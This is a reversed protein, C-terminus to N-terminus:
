KLRICSAYAGVRDQGVEGPAVNLRLENAGGTYIEAFPQQFGNNRTSSWAGALGSIFCRVNKSDPFAVLQTNSNTFVDQVVYEPTWNNCESAWTEGRLYGIVLPSPPTLTHRQRLNAQGMPNFVGLVDAFDSNSAQAINGIMSSLPVALGISLPQLSATTNGLTDALTVLNQKCASTDPIKVIENYGICEATGGPPPSAALGTNDMFSRGQWVGNSDSYIRNFSGRYTSAALPVISSSKQWFPGHVTRWYCFGPVGTGAGGIGLPVVTDVRGTVPDAQTAGNLVARIPASRCTNGQAFRVINCGAEPKPGVGNNFAVLSNACKKVAIAENEVGSAYVGQDPKMWIPSVSTPPTGTFATHPNKNLQTIGTALTGFNVSTGDIKSFVGAVSSAGMRHCSSCDRGTGQVSVAYAKWSQFDNGVFSYPLTQNWTRRRDWRGAANENTGPLRNVAENRLQALYPSRVFPGNDHCSVCNAAATAKPSLWPFTGLSNSPASVAAPLSPVTPPQREPGEVKSQYFCTAGNRQNYQIVAIDGYKTGGGKKRCHAVITVDNTQTLVQFRSKPDCKGNLVNPADCTGAPYV